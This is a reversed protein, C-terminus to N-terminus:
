EGSSETDDLMDVTVGSAERRSALFREFADDTVGLLRSAMLVLSGEGLRFVDDAVAADFAKHLLAHKAGMSLERPLVTLAEVAAEQLRATRAGTEDVFGRERLQAEPFARAVFSAEAETTVDDARVVLDVVHVLFALELDELPWNAM